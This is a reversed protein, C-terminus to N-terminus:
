EEEPWGRGESTLHAQLAAVTGQIDDGEVARRENAGIVVECTGNQFIRVTPALVVRDAMVKALARLRAAFARYHKPIQAYGENDWHIAENEWRQAEGELFVQLTQPNDM